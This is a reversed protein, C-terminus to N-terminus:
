RPHTKFGLLFKIVKFYLSRKKVSKKPNFERDTATKTNKAAEVGAHSM